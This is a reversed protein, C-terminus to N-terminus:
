PTSGPDVLPKQVVEDIFELLDLGQFVLGTREPRDGVIQARRQVVELRGGQPPALHLSAQFSELFFDRDHGPLDVMDQDGLDVVLCEVDGRSM